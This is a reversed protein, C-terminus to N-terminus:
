KRGPAGRAPWLRWAAYLRGSELTFGDHTCVTWKGGLELKDEPRYRTSTVKFLDLYIEVPDDSTYAERM